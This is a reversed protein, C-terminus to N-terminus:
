YLDLSRSVVIKRQRCRTCALGPFKAHRKGTKDDPPRAAQGLLDQLLNAINLHGAETALSIPTRGNCDNTRLDEMSANLGKYTSALLKIIDFHGHEAAYSIPTRIDSDPHMIHKLRDGPDLHDLLVRVVAAHGYECAYSLPGRSMADYQFDHRVTSLRQKLREVDGLCSELTLPVQGDPLRNFDKIPYLSM